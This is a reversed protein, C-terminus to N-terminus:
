RASRSRSPRPSQSTPPAQRLRPSLSVIMWGIIQALAPSRPREPVPALDVGADIFQKEIAAAAAEGEAEAERWSQSRAPSEPIWMRMAFVVLGTMAGTLFALRLALEPNLLSPNFLTVAVPAGLAAGVWFSGSIMLDLHSRFQAPILEQITSNNAAYERGIGAGTLFCFLFFTFGNWALGTLATASLYVAIIFLAERARAPRHAL